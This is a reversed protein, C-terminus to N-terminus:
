NAAEAQSAVQRDVRASLSPDGAVVEAVTRTIRGDISCFVHDDVRVPPTNACQGHYWSPRSFKPVMAAPAWYNTYAVNKNEMMRPGRRLAEKASNVVKELLQGPPLTHNKNETVWSFQAVGKDVKYVQGCVTKESPQGTYAQAFLRGMVVQGVMIQGDSDQNAAEFYLNCVMCTLADKQNRNNCNYNNFTYPARNSGVFGYQGLAGQYDYGRPYRSPGWAMREADTAGYGTSGYVQNYADYPNGGTPVGMMSGLMNMFMDQIGTTQAPPDEVSFNPAPQFQAPPHVAAPQAAAQQAAIQEPGAVKFHPNPTLEGPTAQPSSVQPKVQAAPKPAEVTQQEFKVSHRAPAVVDRAQATFGTLSLVLGIALCFANKTNEM